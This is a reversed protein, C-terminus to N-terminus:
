GDGGGAGAAVGDGARVGPCRGQDRGQREQVTSTLVTVPRVSVDARSSAPKRSGTAELRFSARKPWWAVCRGRRRSGPVDRAASDDRLLPRSRRPMPPPRPSIGPWRPASAEVASREPGRRAAPFGREDQHKGRPTSKVPPRREARRRWLIPAPQPAERRVLWHQHPTRTGPPRGLSFPANRKGRRCPGTGM